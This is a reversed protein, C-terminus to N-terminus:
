LMRKGFSHLKRKKERQNNELDNKALYLKVLNRFVLLEFTSDFKGICRIIEMNKEQIGKLTLEIAEYNWQRINKEPM